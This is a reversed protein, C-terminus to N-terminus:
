AFSEYKESPEGVFHGMGIHIKARHSPSSLATKFLDIPDFFVLKEIGEKTEKKKGGRKSGKTLRKTITVPVQAQRLSIAPFLRKDRAKRGSRMETRCLTHRALDKRFKKM